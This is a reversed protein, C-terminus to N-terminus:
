TDLICFWIFVLAILGKKLFGGAKKQVKETPGFTNRFRVRVTQLSLGGIPIQM